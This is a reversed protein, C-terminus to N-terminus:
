LLDKNQLLDTFIHYFKEVVKDQWNKDQPIFSAKMLKESIEKYQNFYKKNAYNHLWSDFRLNQLIKFPHITGFELVIGFKNKHEDDLSKILSGSLSSSVSQKQYTSEITYNFLKSLTQFTYTDDPRDSILKGEAHKGLGTHIDIIIVKQKQDFCFDKKIKQFIINSQSENQGGYFLGKQFYFQGSSIITSIKRKNFIIGLILFFDFIYRKFSYWKLSVIYKHIFSKYIKRDNLSNFDIFNRNLDISESTVRRNHSYGWPNLAHILLIATDKYHNQINYEQLIKFQCASGAYGEIGHTGSIIVILKQANKHGLYIADSYLNENQKGKEKYKYSKIYANTKIAFKILSNRAELYNEPFLTNNM